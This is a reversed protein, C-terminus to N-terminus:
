SMPKPRFMVGLNPPTLLSRFFELPQDQVLRLSARLVYSSTVIEGLVMACAVSRLGRHGYQVLVWALTLAFVTSALYVKAFGQHRPRFCNAISWLTSV